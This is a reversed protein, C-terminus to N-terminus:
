PVMFLSIGHIKKIGINELTTKCSVLTAGTTIVDDILLVEHPIQEYNLNTKADYSNQSEKIREEKSLKKQQNKTKRILIRLIPIKYKKELIFVLDEIQDWGKNKIKDPRPPVPVIPIGKYKEEWIKAIIESFFFVLNRNNAVKWLFLLKKKQLVYPFLPFISEFDSFINNGNRCKTCLNNEFFLEKGCNLCRKKQIEQKLRSRCGRCLPMSYCLQGCYGCKEPFALFAFLTHLKQKLTFIFINM